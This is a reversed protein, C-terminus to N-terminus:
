RSLSLSPPDAQTRCFSRSGGTLRIVRLNPCCKAFSAISADTIRDLSFVGLERLSCGAARALAEVGVDSVV